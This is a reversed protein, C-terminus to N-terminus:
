PCSASYNWATGSGGACNPTVTVTIYDRTGSFSLSNSGIAGVCGTDLLTRSGYTVVIRDEQSFTNYSFNFSGSNRGMNINRTDATDDGAVQQASCPVKCVQSTVPSGVCGSPYTSTVSRVQSGNTCASWSTYTFSCTPPTPVYTHTTACAQESLESSNGYDDYAQVQFCYKTSSALNSINTSVSTIGSSLSSPNGAHFVKYKLANNGASPNWSLTIKSISAANASLNSPKTPLNILTIADAPTSINSRIKYDFYDIDDSVFPGCGTHIPDTSLKFWTFLCSGFGYNQKTRNFASVVDYTINQYSAITSINRTLFDFYENVVKDVFSAYMTQKWGLVAAAKSNSTSLFADALDNPIQKVTNYETTMSNCANIFVVSNDFKNYTGRENIYQPYISIYKNGTSSDTTCGMVFGDVNTRNSCEQKTMLARYKGTYTNTPNFYGHTQIIIVGYNNSLLDDFSSIDASSDYVKNVSYGASELQTVIITNDFNLETYFPSWIIAKKNFPLINKHSTLETVKNLRKNNIAYLNLKSYISSVLIDNYTGDLWMVRIVGGDYSANMVSPSNLLSTITNNIADPNNNYINSKLEISAADLISSQKNSLRYSTGSPLMDLFARSIFAAMQERTVASSAEYSGTNTTYGEEKMKQVYKFAWSDSPVDNFYPNENFSVNEGFKARIIFAAMQERTVIGSANYTGTNTTLNLEKMKQVYKFSWSNAPVDIFFPTQPYNFTEGFKARIIFAAMQERTVYDNPCFSNSTCGTTIGAVKIANVPGYSWKSSDNNDIFDDKSQTIIFTQNALSISGNRNLGTGNFEITYTVETNENSNIEGSSIHIWDDNSIAHWDGSSTVKIKGIGGSTGFSNATPSITAVSSKIIESVCGSTWFVQDIGFSKGTSNEAVTRFHYMSRNQLGTLSASSKVVGSMISNSANISNGYGDTLGYEFTVITSDLGSNITSTLTVSDCTIDKATATSPLPPAIVSGFPIFKEDIVSLDNSLSNAIYVKSTTNNVIVDIPNTGVPMKTLSYNLCNFVNVSNDISNTIYLLNSTSNLALVKQSTSFSPQYPGYIMTQLKTSSDIISINGSDSYAIYLKGNSENNLLAIPSYSLKITEVSNDTSNIINLVKDINSIIYVNKSITDISIASPNTALSINNIIANNNGDIVTVDNSDYNAVYIINLETNVAVAYPNIGTSINTTSNNVGNVVTLTNSMSNTVYVKNTVTNIAISKPHYGCPITTTTKNIGDIVTMDNSNSNVTYIKNTSSNVAIDLPRSGVDISSTQESILDIITVSNSTYNAVYAKNTIKNIDIAVPNSDARIVSAYVELPDITALTIIIVVIAARITGYVM